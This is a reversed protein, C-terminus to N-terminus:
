STRSRIRRGGRSVKSNSDNCSTDHTHENDNSSGSSSNRAYKNTHDTNDNTTKNIVTMM